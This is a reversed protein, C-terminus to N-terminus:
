APEPASRRGHVAADVLRAVAPAPDRWSWHAHCHRSVYPRVYDVVGYPESRHELMTTGADRVFDIWYRGEEFRDEHQADLGLRDCYEIWPFDIGCSVALTSSLNQRANIEILRYQGDRSDQKWEVCAFGSYGM